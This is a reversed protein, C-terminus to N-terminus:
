LKSRKQLIKATGFDADLEVLDGNNIIKTATKTGIICPIKFERALIAAHCLRGGKDTIIGKIKNIIIVFDPSTMKTVLIIKEKVDIDKNARTKILKAIGIVKGGYVGEGKIKGDFIQQKKSEKKNLFEYKKLIKDALITSKEDRKKRSAIQLGKIVNLLYIGKDVGAEKERCHVLYDDLIILNGEMTILYIHKKNPLNYIARYKLYEKIKKRGYPILDTEFGTLRMWKIYDKSWISDKPPFIEFGEKVKWPLKEKNIITNFHNKRVRVKYGQLKVAYDAILIWDKQELGWKDFLEKLKELVKELKM